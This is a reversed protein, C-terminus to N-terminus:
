NPLSHGALVQISANTVNHYEEAVHGGQVNMVHQLHSTHQVAVQEIPQQDMPLNIQWPTTAKPNPVTTAVHM